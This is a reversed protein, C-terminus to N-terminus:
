RTEVPLTRPGRIAGDRQWDVEEAALRMHPFRTRMTTLGIQLELQALAAGLCYHPGLGFSLHRNEARGLDIMEPAAFQAPDHNAAAIWLWVTEGPGIREGGVDIEARTRRALAQFPSDYRLLEDVARDIPLEPLANWRARYALLRYAANGLAFTTTEHGGVLLLVCQGILEEETLADAEDRAAILASILDDRPARRRAAIQEALYEGLAFFSDIKTQTLAFGILGDSWRKFRTWDTAPIGLLRAIVMAPLPAAFRAMLDFTPGNAAAENLLADVIGQIEGRMGEVVRPTFAALALRRLRTHDPADLTLMMQAQMTWFFRAAPTTPDIGFRELPLAAMQRRSSIRDDRLLAAVDDYAFCHWANWWPPGAAPGDLRIVPGAERLARYAPYPDALLAPDRRMLRDITADPSEM